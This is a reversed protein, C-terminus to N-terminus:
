KIMICSNLDRNGRREEAEGRRGEGIERREEGRDRKKRRGRRRIM